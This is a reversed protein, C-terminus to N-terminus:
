VHDTPRRRKCLHHWQELVDIPGDQMPAELHIWTVLEEVPVDEETAIAHLEHALTAIREEIEFPREEAIAQRIWVLAAAQPGLPKHSM